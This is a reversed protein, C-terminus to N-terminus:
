AVAIPLRCSHANPTPFLQPFRFLLAMEDHFYRRISAVVGADAVSADFYLLFLPM